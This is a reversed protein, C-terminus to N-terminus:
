IAAEEGPDPNQIALRDESDVDANGVLPSLNRNETKRQRMTFSFITGLAACFFGLGFAGKAQFADAFLGALPVTVGFALDFFALYGAMASGRDQPTVRRVVEVGLSPVVLSFGAGSLLSGFLVLSRNPSWFLLLQGLVEILFSWFAVRSGGFRDPLRGAM